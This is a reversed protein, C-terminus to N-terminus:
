TLRLMVDLNKIIPVARRRSSIRTASIRVLYGVLDGREDTTQSNMGGWWFRLLEPLEESKRGREKLKGPSWVDNAPYNNEEESRSLLLLPSIHSRPQIHVKDVPALPEKIVKHWPLDLDKSQVMVEHKKCSRLLEGWM